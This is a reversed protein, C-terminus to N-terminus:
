AIEQFLGVRRVDNERGHDNQYFVYLFHFQFKWQIKLASIINYPLPIAISDTKPICASISPVAM